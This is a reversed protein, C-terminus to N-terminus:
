DDNKLQLDMLGQYEANTFHSRIGYKRSYYGGRIIAEKFLRRGSTTCLIKGRERPYRIMDFHCMM